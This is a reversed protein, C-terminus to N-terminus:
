IVSTFMSIILFTLWIPIIHYDKVTNRFDNHEEESRTRKMESERNNLKVEQTSIKKQLERNDIDLITTRNM